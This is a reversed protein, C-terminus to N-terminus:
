SVALAGGGGKEALALKEKLEKIEKAKKNTSDKWIGVMKTLKEIEKKSDEM